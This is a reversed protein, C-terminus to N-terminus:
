VCPEMPSASSPLHEGPGRFGGHKGQAQSSKVVNLLWRGASSSSSHGHYSPRCPPPSIQEEGAGPDGPLAQARRMGALAAASIYSEVLGATHGGSVM